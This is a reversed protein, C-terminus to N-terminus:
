SKRRRRAMAQQRKKRRFVNSELSNEPPYGKCVGCKGCHLTPLGDTLSIESDCQNCFVCGPCAGLSDFAEISGAYECAWCKLTDEDVTIPLTQKM